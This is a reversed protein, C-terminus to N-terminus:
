LDFAPLKNLHTSISVTEIRQLSNILLRKKREMQGRRLGGILLLYVFVRLLRKPPKLPIMLPATVLECTVVFVGTIDVVGVVFRENSLM